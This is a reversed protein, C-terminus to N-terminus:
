IQASVVLNAAICVSASSSDPRVPVIVTVPVRYGHHLQIFLVIQCSSWASQQQTGSCQKEVGQEGSGVWVQDWPSTIGGLGPGAM